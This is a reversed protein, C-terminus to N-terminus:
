AFLNAYQPNGGDYIGLRRLHELRAQYFYDFYVAHSVHRDADMDNPRVVVHTITIHPSPPTLM